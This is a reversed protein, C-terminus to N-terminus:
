PNVRIKLIVKSNANIKFRDDIRKGIIWVIDNGSCLLWQNEKDIKSYKLDIFFDSLKKQKSMGLPYFYDGRKWKRILLPFNLKEFDFYASFQPDDFKAPRADLLEFTLCVPETTGTQLDGAGISYSKREIRNEVPVIILSYRDRVLRHTASIVEKGPIAEALGIIDKVNSINFGYPSLLEYAWTELPELSFFEKLLVSVAGGRIEFISKRNEEIAQRYIIEADKIHGITENLATKFSPNLKELQPIINHRIRNRSYKDTLNSSDEVFELKNESAYAEIEKRGTFLMPRIINGQSVPIGHLGAIGTGRTLNILFTEVQDDLHHATALRDYSHKLLLEDFWTYRLDRAAVQISVKNKRAYKATEFDKVFVEAQYKEALRRVFLEDRDSEEGRLHFNAHAIGFSFGAKHFLDSMVVSDIGGSVALLIRSSYDVLKNDRLFTNLDNLM